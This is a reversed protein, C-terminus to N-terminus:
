FAYETNDVDESYYNVALSPIESIIKMFKNWYALNPSGKMARPNYEMKDSPWCRIQIQSNNLLFSFTYSCGYSGIYGTQETVLYGLKFDHRLPVIDMPLLVEQAVYIMAEEISTFETFVIAGIDGKKPESDPDLLLFMSLLFTILM